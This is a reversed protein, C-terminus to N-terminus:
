WEKEPGKIKPLNEKFWDSSEGEHCATARGMGGSCSYPLNAEVKLNHFREVHQNTIAYAAMHCDVCRLDGSEMNKQKGELLNHSEHHCFRCQANQEKGSSRDRFIYSEAQTPDTGPKFNVLLSIRKDRVLSGPHCAGCSVGQWTGKPIPKADEEKQTAGETLPAHCWACATTVRDEHSQSRAHASALWGREDLVPSLAGSALDVGAARPMFQNEPGKCNACREAEQYHYKDPTLHRLSFAEEQIARVGVLCICIGFFLIIVATIKRM